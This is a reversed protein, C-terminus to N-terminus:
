MAIPMKSRLIEVALCFILVGAIQFLNAIYTPIIGIMHTSVFWFITSVVPIVLQANLLSLMQPEVQARLSLLQHLMAVLVNYQQRPPNQADMFVVMLTVPQDHALVTAWPPIQGGRSVIELYVKRWVGPLLQWREEGRSELFLVLRSYDDKAPGRLVYYLLAAAMPPIPTNLAALGIAAAVPIAVRNGGKRWLEVAIKKIASFPIWYVAVLLLAFVALVLPLAKETM